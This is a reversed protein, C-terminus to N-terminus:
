KRVVLLFLISQVFLILVFYVLTHLAVNRFGEMKSFVIVLLLVMGALFQLTTLAMFRMVFNETKGKFVPLMTLSGLTYVAIVILDYLIVTNTNHEFVSNSLLVHVIFLLISIGLFLAFYKKSTM